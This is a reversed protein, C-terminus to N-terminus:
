EEYAIYRAIKWTGDPQKRFLDLGPEQTVTEGPAGPRTVTLTWVLRVAALNGEVLIEKIRLAYSFKKTRDALSHGLLACIDAFGREPFGRYDYRLEPAFLACVKDAKGANFDAAWQTLAQRIAAEAAPDARAPALLMALAVGAAAARWRASALSV